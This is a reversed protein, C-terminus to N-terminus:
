RRRTRGAPSSRATGTTPSCARRAHPRRRPPRHDDRVAPRHRAGGHDTGTEADVRVLGVEKLLVAQELVDSVSEAKSIIAHPIIEPGFRAHASAAESCCLWNPRSWRATARRVAHAAPPLRPARGDPRGRTTGRRPARLRRRRRRRALMEGIVEAHVDSNQRLDLGCLHTRFIEVRGACRCRCPRGGAGSRRARQLSAAVIDLDAILESPRPTRRCTPTLRRAPYRPRAGRRGDDVAPRAHRAPRAPVARRRPVALRRRVRRGAGRARIHSRDPPGVDVAGAVPRAAGHPSARVRDDAQSTVALRLVDATVYPNGDRDGGIWSGM